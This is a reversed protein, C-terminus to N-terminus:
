AFDPHDDDGQDGALLCKPAACARVQAAAFRAGYKSRGFGVKGLELLVHLTAGERVVDDLDALDGNEDFAGADAPLGASLLWGGRDDQTVFSLLSKAIVDDALCSGRPFWRAKNTVCAAVM